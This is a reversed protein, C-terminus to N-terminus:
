MIMVDGLVFIGLFSLPPTLGYVNNKYKSEYLGKLFIVLNIFGYIMIAIKQSSNM